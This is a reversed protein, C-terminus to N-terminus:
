YSHRDGKAEKKGWGVLYWCKKTSRGPKGRKEYVNESNLVENMRQSWTDDKLAVGLNAYGVKVPEDVNLETSKIAQISRECRQIIPM